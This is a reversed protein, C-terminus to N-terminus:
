KNEEGAEERYKPWSEHSKPQLDSAGLPREEGRRDSEGLPCPAGPDDPKAPELREPPCTAGPGDFGEGLRPGEAGAAPLHSEQNQKPECGKGHRIQVGCTETHM